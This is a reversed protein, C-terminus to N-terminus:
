GTEQIQWTCKRIKDRPIKGKLKKAKRTKCAIDRKMKVM